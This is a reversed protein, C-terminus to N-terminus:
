RRIITTTPAPQLTTTPATLIPSITTTTPATLTPSITTTTPATFIPSITTTTPSITTTTPSTLIPSITTTTPSITTTTPSITTTTPSTLTPSITTTTPSIEIKTTTPATQLTSSPAIQLTPTVELVRPSDIPNLLPAAVEKSPAVSKAPAPELVAPADRILRTTAGGADGKGDGDGRSQPTVPPVPTPKGFLGGPPLVLVPPLKGSLAAFVTQDRNVFVASGTRGQITTVGDYVRNYTGAAADPLSQLVHVVEFDTGRVGITMASTLVRYNERSNRAILGTITRFGGKIISVLFSDGSEGRGSFRYADLKMQTEARVSIAGGDTMHMQALSSPGTVITEGARIDGNRVATRAKGDLGLVKVDGVVVIFRGAAAGEQAVAHGAAAMCLVGLAALLQRGHRLGMEM